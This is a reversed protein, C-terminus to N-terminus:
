DVLEGPPDELPRPARTDGPPRALSAPLILSSFLVMAVIVRLFVEALYSLSPASGAGRFSAPSPRACRRTSTTDIGPVLREILRRSPARGCRCTCAALNSPPPPRGVCRPSSRRPGAPAPPCSRRSFDSCATGNSSFRRMVVLHKEVGLWCLPLAGDCLGPAQARDRDGVVHPAADFRSPPL